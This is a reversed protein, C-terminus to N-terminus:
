VKEGETETMVYNGNSELEEQTGGMFVRSIVHEGGESLAPCGGMELHKVQDYRRLGKGQISYCDCTKSILVHVDKPAM